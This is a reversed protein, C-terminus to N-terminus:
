SALEFLRPTYRGLELVAKGDEIVLPEAAGVGGPTNGLVDVLRLADDAVDAPVGMKARLEAVPMELRKDEFALNSLALLPKEGPATRVASLVEVNGNPVDELGGRRLAVRDRRLENMRKVMVAGPYGDREAAVFASKPINGRHIWRADFTNEFTVDLHAEEKLAKFQQEHKKNAYGWDNKWGIEDGAYITPNTGPFFTSQVFFGNAIRAPDNDLLEANRGTVSMGKKFVLGGRSRAYEDIDDWDDRDPVFGVFVEDHTGLPLMEVAGDPPVPYTHIRNWYDSTKQFYLMHQLVGRRDFAYMADAGSTTEKGGIETDHGFYDVAKSAGAVVEPLIVAKPSVSKVFIKMIEQLELTEPLDHAPVGKRKMVHRLADLRLGLTGADLHNGVLQLIWEMVDPNRPNIDFQFKNFTRFLQHEKGNVTVKALHSDTTEPFILLQEEPTGDPWEYQIWKDGDRVESGTVEVGDYNVFRDLMSEDGAVLKQYWPHEISVHNIVLDWVTHVGKQLGAKVMDEYGAAGGLSEAPTFKAIDYGGDWGPSEFVPRLSLTDVGLWKLYGFMDKTDKFTAQDKGEPVGFSDVYMEYPAAKQLWDDPVKDLLEKIEPSQAARAHQVANWFRVFHEDARGPDFQEFLARVRKVDAANTIDKLPAWRARLKPSVAAGADFLSEIAQANDPFRGGTYLRGPEESTLTKRKKDVSLVGLGGTRVSASSVGGHSRGRTGPGRTKPVADDGFRRWAEGTNPAHTQAGLGEARKGAPEEAEVRKDTHPARHPDVPSRSRSRSLADTKGM